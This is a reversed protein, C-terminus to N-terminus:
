AAWPARPPEAGGGMRLLRGALYRGSAALLALLSSARAALPVEANQASLLEAYMAHARAPDAKTGLGFELSYAVDFRGRADGADMARQSWALAEAADRPAGRLGHSYAHSLAHMADLSGAAAARRHYALGCVEPPAAFFPKDLPELSPDVEPCLKSGPPCADGPASVEACAGDGGRCAFAGHCPCDDSGTLALLAEWSGPAPAPAPAAAALGAELGRFYWDPRVWCHLFDQAAQPLAEVSSVTADVRCSRSGEAEMCAASSTADSSGQQKTASPAGLRHFTWNVYMGEVRAVSCTEDLMLKGRQHHHEVLHPVAGPPQLAAPVPAGDPLVEYSTHWLFSHLHRFQSRTPQPLVVEPMPIGELAAAGAELSANFMEFGGGEVASAFARSM